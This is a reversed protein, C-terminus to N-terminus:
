VCGRVRLGLRRFGPPQPGPHTRVTLVDHRQERLLRHRPLATPRAATRQLVNTVRELRQMLESGLLLPAADRALEEGLVLVIPPEVLLDPALEGAQRCAHERRGRPASIEARSM